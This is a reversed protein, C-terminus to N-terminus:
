ESFQIYIPDGKKIDFFERANGERISVEFLNLSGFLALPDNQNPVEYYHTKLGQFITNGVRVKISDTKFKKVAREFMIRELNTVINGFKDFFLVQCRVTRNQVIVPKKYELVKFDTIPDGFMSSSFYKSLWAAVPAFVDRGHFTPCIPHLMYHDGSVHYVDKVVDDKLIRSIVGNDPALYYHSEGAALIPRRDSGVGPDVVVLHITPGPFHKIVSQLVYSAQVIDYSEISHTIDIIKADPNIKRIVGKMLGVHYSGEGFDTILSIIPIPM